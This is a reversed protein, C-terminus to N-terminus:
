LPTRAPGSGASRLRMLARKIAPNEAAPRNSAVSRIAAAAKTPAIRQHSALKSKGSFGSPVLSLRPSRPRIM